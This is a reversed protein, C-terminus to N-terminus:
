NERVVYLPDPTCSNENLAREDICITSFRPISTHHRCILDALNEFFVGVAKRHKGAVKDERDVGGAANQIPIRAGILWVIIAETLSVNLHANAPQM